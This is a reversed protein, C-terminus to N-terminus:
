GQFLNWGHRALFSWLSALHGLPSAFTMCKVCTAGETCNTDQTLPLTCAAVEEVVIQLRSEDFHLSHVLPELTEKMGIVFERALLIAPDLSADDPAFSSPPLLLDLYTLTNHRVSIIRQGQKFANATPSNPADVVLAALKTMVKMEQWGADERKPLTKSTLVRVKSPLDDLRSALSELLLAQLVRTPEDVTYKSTRHRAAIDALIGPTPVLTEEVKTVPRMVVTSVIPLDQSDLLPFTSM